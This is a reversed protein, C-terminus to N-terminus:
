EPNREEWELVRGTIMGYVIRAQGLRDIMKAITQPNDKAIEANIIKQRMGDCFADINAQTLYLWNKEGIGAPVAQTALATAEELTSPVKKDPQVRPRLNPAM